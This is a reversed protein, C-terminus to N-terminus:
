GLYDSCSYDGTYEADLYTKVNSSSLLRYLLEETLHEQTMNGKGATTM